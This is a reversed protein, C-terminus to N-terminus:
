RSVGGLDALFREAWSAADHERVAAVLRDSVRATKGAIAAALTRSFGATDFPDVSVLGDDEFGAYASAAGTDRGMTIVGRESRPRVSQAIACQLPVLNMGDALSSTCVINSDRLVAVVEPL